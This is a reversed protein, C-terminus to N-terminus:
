LYLLVFVAQKRPHFTLRPLLSYKNEKDHMISLLRQKLFALFKKEATILM